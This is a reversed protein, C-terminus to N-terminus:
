VRRWKAVVVGKADRQELVGVVTNGGPRLCPFRAGTLGVTNGGERGKAVVRPIAARITFM